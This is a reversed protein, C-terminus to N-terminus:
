AMTRRNGFALDYLKTYHISYSTIVSAAVLTVRSMVALAAGSTPRYIDSASEQTRPLLSYAKEMNEIIYEVCEDYSNREMSLSEGDSNLDLLDDPPIVVPGYQQLLLYLFYGKFFYMEGTYQRKTSTSVDPTVDMNALVTNAKRIGKYWTGYNNYYSNANQPTIENLLLKVAAHRSDNWSPFNEDSAGQFPSWSSTYLRDENAYYSRIAYM